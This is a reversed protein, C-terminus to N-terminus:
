LEEPAAQKDTVIMHFQKQQSGHTKQSTTRRNPKNKNLYIDILGRQKTAGLAQNDKTRLPKLPITYSGNM